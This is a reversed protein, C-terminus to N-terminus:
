RQNPYKLIQINMISVFPFIKAGLHGDLAQNLPGIQPGEVTKLEGAKVPAVEHHHIPTSVLLEINYTTEQIVPVKLRRPHARELVAAATLEHYATLEIWIQRCAAMEGAVVVEYGM